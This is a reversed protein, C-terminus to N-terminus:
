KLTKIAAKDAKHQAQLQKMEETNEKLKSRAEELAKELKSLDGGSTGSAKGNKYAKVGETLERKLETRDKKLSSAKNESLGRQRTVAKHIDAEEKKAAKIGANAAAQEPSSQAKGLKSEYKEVSAQAKKLEKNLRAVAEDASKAMKKLETNMSKLLKKQSQLSAKDAQRQEQIASEGSAKAKKLAAEAQRVEQKLDKRTGQLVTRKESYSTKEDASIGERLEKNKAKLDSKNSKKEAKLDKVLGKLDNGGGRIESRHQSALDFAKTVSRAKEVGEGGIFITEGGPFTLERQYSDEYFSDDNDLLKNLQEMNDKAGRASQLNERSDSVKTSESQTKEAVQQLAQKVSASPNPPVKQASRDTIPKLLSKLKALSAGKPRSPIRTKAAEFAACGRSKIGKGISALGSKTAGKPDAKMASWAEGASEKLQAKKEKAADLKEQGYTKVSSGANRTSEMPHLVAQRTGSAAKKGFNKASTLKHGASERAQSALNKAKKWAGSFGRRLLGPEKSDLKETQREELRTEPLESSLESSLEDAAGPQQAQVLPEADVVSVERHGLKGTALEESAQESGRLQPANISGTRNLGSSDM